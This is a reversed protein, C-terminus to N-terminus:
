RVKQTSSQLEEVSAQMLASALKYEELLYYSAYQMVFQPEAPDLTNKSTRARVDVCPLLSHSVWYSVLYEPYEM